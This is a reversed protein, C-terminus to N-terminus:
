CKFIFIKTSIFFFRVQVFYDRVFLNCQVFWRRVFFSRDHQDSRVVDTSVLKSLTEHLRIWKQELHGYRVRCPRGPAVLDVALIIVEQWSVYEFGVYLLTTKDFVALVLFIQVSSTAFGDFLDNLIRFNANEVQIRLYSCRDM